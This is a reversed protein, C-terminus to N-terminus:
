LEITQNDRAIKVNLPSAAIADSLLKDRGHMLFLHNFIVQDTKAKELKPFIVDPTFHAYECVIIDTHESYASQPFDAADDQHLDGTFLVRKGEAEVLFAFSPLGKSEIHRTPIATVSLTGDNYFKGATVERHFIREDANEHATVALMNKFAAALRVDPYYINYSTNKYFWTTLSYFENLGLIHDSHGHTIFIAKIKELFPKANDISGCKRTLIDIVPAGMDILYKREGVEILASSCYRDFDPMGSATGLFTIKM